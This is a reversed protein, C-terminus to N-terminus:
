CDVFVHGDCFSYGCSFINRAYAEFDIYYHLIEEPIARTDYCEFFIHEAFDREDEWEGMYMEDFKEKTYFDAGYLCIFADVAERNDCEAYEKIKDFTAEDMMSESYWEQPFNEYDQFMLEPDHEDRHLIHCFEIFEDYSDFSSLDVWMGDLSGGNYKGYTGVYVAPTDAHYDQEHVFFLDKVDEENQLTGFNETQLMLSFSILSNTIQGGKHAIKIKVNSWFNLGSANALIEAFHKEARRSAM